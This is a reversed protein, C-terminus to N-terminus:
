EMIVVIAIVTINDKEGRDKVLQIANECEESILEQNELHQPSFKQYIEHESIEHVFGDSTLLFATDEIIEGSEFQPCVVKSAGICQLLVNRRPDIRAEEKTIRGLKLEEAVLTHDETLKELDKGIKFICSDGVHFIYYRNKYILLLSMTTGMMKKDSNAYESLCTNSNTVINEWQELINVESFSNKQIMTAFDTAFWNNFRVVVERSAVEGKSLGGMGDCVIAFVIKGQPSNVIKLSLSDQNIKKLIGVDTGYSAYARM